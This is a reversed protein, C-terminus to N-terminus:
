LRGRTILSIVAVFVTSGIISWLVPFSQGGVRIPLVEPLGITRALWVGIFAGIFGVVISTLFGGSSSGAIAQGLSGAVGAILLLIIVDILTM